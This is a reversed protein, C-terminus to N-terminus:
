SGIKEELITVWEKRAMWDRLSLLRKETPMVIHICIVNVIPYTFMALSLRFKMRQKSTLGVNPDSVNWWDDAAAVLPAYKLAGGGSV